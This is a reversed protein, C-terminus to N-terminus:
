YVEYINGYRDKVLRTTPTMAKFSKAWNDNYYSKYQKIAADYRRTKANAVQIFKKPNTKMMKMEQPSFVKLQKNYHNIMRDSKQILKEAQKEWYAKNSSQANMTLTAAFLFFLFFFVNKM